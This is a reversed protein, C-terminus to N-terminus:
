LLSLGTNPKVKEHGIIRRSVIINSKKDGLPGLCAHDKASAPM